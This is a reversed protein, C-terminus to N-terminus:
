FTSLFAILSITAPISHMTIFNDTTNSQNNKIKCNLKESLRDIDIIDTILSTKKVSSLFNCAKEKQQNYREYYDPSFAGKTTRFRLKDPMLGHMGSRIAYRTYGNKVKFNGPIALCFELIRKDLYPHSLYVPSGNDSQIFFNHAIINTMSQHQHYRHNPHKTYLNLQTKRLLEQNIYPKMFSSKIFSTQEQFTFKSHYLLKKQVYKPFCPLMIEKIAFKSWSKEHNKIHQRTEHLLTRWQMDLLLEAFYGSGHFSPGIEGFCGDLIVRAGHATAATAFAQYLYYRSSKDPETMRYKLDDLGDFPGRWIDSVHQIILNSKKLLHIHYSEDIVDGQYNPPLTASLATISKGEQMLLHAAMATISSSDLGGSHLTLVPYHSRLKANMVTALLEQFSEKYDDESKYFIRKEIDPEWYIHNQIRKETVSFLTRANARLINAYYTMNPRNLKYAQNRHAAICEFNPVRAISDITHLANIDTAFAFINTDHYYYFTRRGTHDIFCILEQRKEDWIVVAFEGLLYKPCDKGWQLYARLILSSDSLHTENKVKFYNCLYARNDLKCDATIAIKSSPDYYPLVETISESTLNNAAYGFGVNRSQWVTLGDPGIPAMSQNMKSVDSMNIFISNFRYLGCIGSM